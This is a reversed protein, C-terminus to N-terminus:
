FLVWGLDLVPFGVLGARLGRKGRVARGVSGPGAPATYGAAEGRTAWGADKEGAQGTGHTRGM